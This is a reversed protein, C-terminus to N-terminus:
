FLGKNVKLWNLEREISANTLGLNQVKKLCLFAKTYNGYSSCAMGMNSYCLADTNPGDDYEENLAQQFFQEATELDQETGLGDRYCIGLMNQAPAYGRVEGAIQFRAFARDYDEKEFFEMGEEYMAEASNGAAFCDTPIGSFLVAMMMIIVLIRKM